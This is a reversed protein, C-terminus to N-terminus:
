WLLCGLTDGIHGNRESGPFELAGKKRGSWLLWFRQVMELAVAIVAASSFGSQPWAGTKQLLRHNGTGDGEEGGGLGPCSDVRPDDHGCGDGPIKGNSGDRVAECFQVSVAFFLQM